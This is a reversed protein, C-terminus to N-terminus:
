MGGADPSRIVRDILRSRVMNNVSYMTVSFRGGSEVVTGSSVLNIPTAINIIVKAKNPVETAIFNSSFASGTGFHTDRITPFYKPHRTSRFM